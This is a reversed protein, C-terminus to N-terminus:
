QQVHGPSEERGRQINPEREEVQCGGDELIGDDGLRVREGAVLAHLSELYDSGVHSIREPYGLVSEVELLVETDSVRVPANLGDLGM